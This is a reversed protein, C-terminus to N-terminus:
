ARPQSRPVFVENAEAVPFNLYMMGNDGDPDVEIRDVLLRLVAQREEPQLHELGDRMSACFERIGDQVSVIATQAEEADDFVQLEDSVASREQAIERLQADLVTESIKGGRFLRVVQMEEADLEAMRRELGRRVDPGSAAQEQRGEEQLHLQQLMAEPDNLLGTVAEWVVPEIRDTRVARARCQETIKLGLPRQGRCEYYAAQPGPQGNLGYGCKGCRLLGRLLYFNRKNNRPNFHANESLREQAREWTARDVIAPVPVPIWESRDRKRQSTKLKRRYPTASRRVEPEVCMEKFFYATGAYAENKLMRHLSSYGWALGGRKTRIGRRALEKAISSLTRGDDNLLRFVERVVAAEEENVRWRQGDGKAYDYGYPAQGGPIVGQRAKHLRGRRTRDLIKAREYEGVAGQIQLLLKGEPTDDVQQNLFVVRAGHKEFEELLIGLHLFNRSLRDPCLCLITDVEGAAVADRLADLGPRELMSGSYGDDVFERVSGLGRASAHSRVEAIQSEVTQQREQTESSVRCYAAIM